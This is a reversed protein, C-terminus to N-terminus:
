ESDQNLVRDIQRRHILGVEQDFFLEFFRIRVSMLYRYALHSNSKTILFHKEHFLHRYMFKKKEIKTQSHVYGRM